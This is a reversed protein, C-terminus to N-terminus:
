YDVDYLDLIFHAQSIKKETQHIQKLLTIKQKCAQNLKKDNASSEYFDINKNLKNLQTQLENLLDTYFIIDNKAICIKQQQQKEQKSENPEPVSLSDIYKKYKNIKHQRIFYVTLLIIAISFLVINGVYPPSEM